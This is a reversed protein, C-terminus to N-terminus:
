TLSVGFRKAIPHKLMRVNPEATQVIRLGNDFLVATCQQWQMARMKVM